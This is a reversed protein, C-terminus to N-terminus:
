SPAPVFRMPPLVDLIALLLHLRACGLFPLFSQLNEIHLTDEQQSQTCGSCHEEGYATGLDSQNTSTVLHAKHTWFLRMVLGRSGYPQSRSPIGFGFNPCVQEIIEQRRDERTRALNIEDVERQREAKVLTPLPM